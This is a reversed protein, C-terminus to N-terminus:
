EHGWAGTSERTEPVGEAYVVAELHAIRTDLGGMQRGIQTNQRELDKIRRVLKQRHEAAAEAYDSAESM